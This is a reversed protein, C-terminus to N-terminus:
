VVRIKLCFSATKNEIVKRSSSNYSVIVHMMLCMKLYKPMSSFQFEIAQCAVEPLEVKFDKSIRRQIIALRLSSKLAGGTQSQVDSGLVVYCM